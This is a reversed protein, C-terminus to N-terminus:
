LLGSYGLVQDSWKKAQVSLLTRQTLSHQVEPWASRWATLMRQIDVLEAAIEPETEAAIWEIFYRSEEIMTAVADAGTEHRASSAIRALDAALGALRIPLPDRLFRQKKSERNKM